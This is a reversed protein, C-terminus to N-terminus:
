SKPISNFQQPNRQPTIIRFLVFYSFPCINSFNSLFKQAEDEKSFVLPFTYQLINIPAHKHNELEEKLVYMKSAGLLALGEFHVLLDM